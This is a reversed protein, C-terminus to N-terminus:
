VVDEDEIVDASKRYTQWMIALDQPPDHHVDSMVVDEDPMIHNHAEIVSALAHCFVSVLTHILCEDREEAEFIVRKYLSANEGSSISHVIEACLTSNDGGFEKITYNNYWLDIGFEAAFRVPSELLTMYAYYLQEHEIVRDGHALFVDDADRSDFLEDGIGAFFPLFHTKFNDFQKEDEDNTYIIDDLIYCVKSAMKPSVDNKIMNIVPGPIEGGRRKSLCDYASKEQQTYFHMYDAFMQDPVFEFFEDIDIM